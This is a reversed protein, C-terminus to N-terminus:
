KEGIYIRAAGLSSSANESKLGHSQLLDRLGNVWRAADMPRGSSDYMPIRVQDYRQMNRQRGSRQSFQHNVTNDSVWEYIIEGLEKGGLETSMTTGAGNDLIRVDLRIERGNTQLDDFYEGLTTCFQDMNNKATQKLAVALPVSRRVEGTQGAVPAVSKNSYSDVAEIRYNMSYLTGYSSGDWGIKLTIDPKARRLIEDYANTAAEAGSEAGEFAEDLMEDEDDAEQQALADVMPFGREAMIQKIALSVNTFDKDILARDYDERVVTKGNRQTETVYGKDVCWTKDPVIMLKPAASFASQTALLVAAVTAIISKDFIEM